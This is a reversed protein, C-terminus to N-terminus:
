SRVAWRDIIQKIKQIQEFLFYGQEQCTEKDNVQYTTEIVDYVKNLIENKTKLESNLAKENLAKEKQLAEIMLKMNTMENEKAELKVQMNLADQEKMKKELECSKLKDEIEHIQKVYKLIDNTESELKEIQQKYALNDKHLQVIEDHARAYKEILEDIKNM